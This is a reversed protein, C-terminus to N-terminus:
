FMLFGFTLLLVNVFLVRFGFVYQGNPYKKQGRVCRKLDGVSPDRDWSNLVNKRAENRNKYCGLRGWKLKWMKTMKELKSSKRETEIKKLMESSKADSKEFKAWYIRGSGGKCNILMIRRRLSVNASARGALQKRGPQSFVMVLILLLRGPALRLCVQFHVIFFHKSFSFSSFCNSIQKLTGSRSRDYLDRIQYPNRNPSRAVNLCHVASLFVIQISINKRIM